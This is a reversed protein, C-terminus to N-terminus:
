VLFAVIAHELNLANQPIENKGFTNYIWDPMGFLLSYAGVPATFIIFLPFIGIVFMGFSGNQIATWLWYLTGLGFLIYLTFAGIGLGGGLVTGVRDKLSVM